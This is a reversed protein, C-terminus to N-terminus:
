SELDIEKHHRVKFSVFRNPSLETQYKQGWSLLDNDARKITIIITHKIKM